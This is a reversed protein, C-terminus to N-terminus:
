KPMPTGTCGGRRALADCAVIDHRWFVFGSPIPVKFVNRAAQRHSGTRCVGTQNM